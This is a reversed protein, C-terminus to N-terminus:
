METLAVIAITVLVCAVLVLFARRNSAIAVSSGTLQKQKGTIMALVLPKKAIKYGLIAVLHVGIFIPLIKANTEHVAAILEFVSDTLWDSIMPLNDAFGAVVLGSLCQVLLLTLLLIVMWAGAPNHGPKPKIKGFLYSVVVAPSSVFQKFQSTESGVIGWIIRWLVLVFLTLGLYTHPGQGTFGSALLGTVLAAQLWHYIRTPLDWVKM